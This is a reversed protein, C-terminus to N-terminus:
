RPRAPRARLATLGILGLAAILLLLAPPSAAPVGPVTVLLGDRVLFQASAAFSGAPSSTWRLTYFGDPLVGLVADQTFPFFVPPPPPAPPPPCMAFVVNSAVDVIPPAVTVSPAGSLAFNCPAVAGSLTATIPGAGSQSVTVREFAAHASSCFWLIVSLAIASAPKM